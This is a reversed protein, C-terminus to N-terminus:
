PLQSFLRVIQVQKYHEGICSSGEPQWQTHLHCKCSSCARPAWTRQGERSCSAAPLIITSISHKKMIFCKRVSIISILSHVILCPHWPNRESTELNANLTIYTTFQIRKQSLSSGERIWRTRRKWHTDAKSTVMTPRAPENNDKCCREVVRLMYVTCASMLSFIRAIRM